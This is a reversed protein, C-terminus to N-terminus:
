ERVIRATKVCIICKNCKAGVRTIWGNNEMYVVYDGSQACVAVGVCRVAVGVCRVAVGVCRVAVGVCRVAVGDCYVNPRLDFM